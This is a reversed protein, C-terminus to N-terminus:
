VAENGELPVQCASIKLPHIGASANPPQREAHKTVPMSLQPAHWRLM